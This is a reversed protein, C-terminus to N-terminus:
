LSIEEECSMSSSSDESELSEENDSNVFTEGSNHDNNNSLNKKSLSINSEEKQEICSSFFININKKKDKIEKKIFSLLIQHIRIAKFNEKKELKNIDITKDKYKIIESNIKLCDM